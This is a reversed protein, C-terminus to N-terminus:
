DLEMLKEYFQIKSKLEEIGQDLVLLPIQMMSTLYSGFQNKYQENNEMVKTYTKFDELLKTRKDMAEQLEIKSTEYFPKIVNCRQEKTLFGFHVAHVKFSFDTAGPTSSPEIPTAALEVLKKRGAETIHYVKKDPVSEQMERKGEICGDKELRALAPYLASNSLKFYRDGYSTEIAHKIMYGHLPAGMLIGLIVLDVENKGLGM